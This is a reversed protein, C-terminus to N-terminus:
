QLFSPKTPWVASEDYEADLNQMDRLAQRYVFLEQLQEQNLSLSANTLTQEYHRTVAWDTESLKINRAARMDFVYEQQQQQYEETARNVIQDFNSEIWQVEESNSDTVAIGGLREAVFIGRTPQYHIITTTPLASALGIRECFGEADQTFFKLDNYFVEARGALRDIVIMKENM